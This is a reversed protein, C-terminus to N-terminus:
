GFKKKLREYEAIERKNKIEWKKISELQKEAKEGNYNLQFLCRFDPRYIFLEDFGKPKKMKGNDFHFEVWDEATDEGTFKWHHTIKKVSRLLKSFSDKNIDYNWIPRDNNM